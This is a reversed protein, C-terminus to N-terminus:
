TPIGGKLQKSNIKAIIMDITSERIVEAAVTQPISQRLESLVQVRKETASEVFDRISYRTATVVAEMDSPGLFSYMPGCPGEALNRDISESKMDRFATVLADKFVERARTELDERVGKLLWNAIMKRIM